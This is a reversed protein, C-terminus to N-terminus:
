YGQCTVWLLSHDSYIVFSSNNDFTFARIWSHRIIKRKSCQSTLAIITRGESIVPRCAVIVNLLQLLRAYICNASGSMRSVDSIHASKWLKSFIMTCSNSCRMNAPMSSMQVWTISSILGLALFIALFCHSIAESCGTSSKAFM